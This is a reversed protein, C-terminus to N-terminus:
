LGNVINHPRKGQAIMLATRAAKQRLELFSQESYFATHPNILLRGDLWEERNGWAKILKDDKPPEDPMVDLAANALHGSHLADYIVDTHKLIKGRGTNVLSAGEKMKSIFEEDVMGTTEETLPSHISVIDSMALLEDLSEVRSSSLLKEHGREKYPDFFVTQFNMANAKLITSGGIRGAGVFGVVTSSNRKIAPNVNAQWTDRYSRARYDYRTVGRAINMIMTIATDSVEDTGYDPNNCVYIGKEKAYQLDFNEYGVGFRVMGRLRPYRDIVDPTIQNRWVLLVEIDDHSTESYHEGLIKKEISLDERVHDTIYVNNM